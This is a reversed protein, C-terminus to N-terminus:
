SKPSDKNTHRHKYTPKNVLKQFRVPNDVLEFYVHKRVNEITKGFVSNIMLKFLDKEFETKANKRKETNFDIYPKLFDAQNFSIVRHIKKLKLGHRLYDM